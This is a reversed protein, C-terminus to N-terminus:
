FCLLGHINPCIFLIRILFHNYFDRPDTGCKIDQSLEAQSNTTCPRATSTTTTTCRTTDSSSSPSFPGGCCSRSSVTTCGSIFQPNSNSPILSKLTLLMLHSIIKYNIQGNQTSTTLTSTSFVMESTVEQLPSGDEPPRIDKATWHNWVRFDYFRKVMLVVFVFFIILFTFWLNSIEGM